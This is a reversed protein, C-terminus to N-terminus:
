WGERAVRGADPSCIGAVDVKAEGTFSCGFDLLLFCSAFTRTHASGSSEMTSTRSTGLVSVFWQCRNWCHLGTTNSLHRRIWTPM